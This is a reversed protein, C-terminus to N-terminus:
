LMDELKKPYCDVSNTSLNYLYTKIGKKVALDFTNKSGKSFGDWIIIAADAYEIMQKNRKFGASRGYLDWQARFEAIPINNLRAYTAGLMDVGRALGCVVQTIEFGSRQIHYEILKYDTIERSGAIITKM